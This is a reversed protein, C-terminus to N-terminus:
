HTKGGGGNSILRTTLLTMNTNGGDTLEVNGGSMNIIEDITVLTLNNEAGVNNDIGM